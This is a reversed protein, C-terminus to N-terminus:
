RSDSWNYTAELIPATSFISIAHSSVGANAIWLFEQYMSFGESAYGQSLLSAYDSQGNQLSDVFPYAAFKRDFEIQLTLYHIGDEHGTIDIQLDERYIKILGLGRRHATKLATLERKAAILRASLTDVM